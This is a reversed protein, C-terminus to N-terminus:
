TIGDFSSVTRVHLTEIRLKWLCSHLSTIKVYHEQILTCQHLVVILLSQRRTVGTGQPQAEALKSCTCLSSFQILLFSLCIHSSVAYSFCQRECDINIQSNGRLSSSSVPFCCIKYNLAQVDQSPKSCTFISSFSVHFSLCLSPRRKECGDNELTYM